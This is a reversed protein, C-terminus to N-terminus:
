RRIKELNELKKQYRKMKRKKKRELEHRWKKNAKKAVYAKDIKTNRM